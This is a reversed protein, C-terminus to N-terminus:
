NFNKYFIWNCGFLGYLCMYISCIDFMTIYLKNISAVVFLCPRTWPVCRWRGGRTAPHLRISLDFTERNPILYLKTDNGYTAPFYGFSWSCILPTNYKLLMYLKLVFRLFLLWAHKCNQAHHRPSLANRFDPVLEDPHSGKLWCPELCVRKYLSIVISSWMENINNNMFQNQCLHVYYKGVILRIFATRTVKNTTEM